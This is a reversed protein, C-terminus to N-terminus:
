GQRSERTRRWKGGQVAHYIYTNNPRKTRSQRYKGKGIKRIRTSTRSRSRGASGRRGWCLTALTILGPNEEGAEGLGRWGACQEVCIRLLWKGARPIWTRWAQKAEERTTRRTTPATRQALSQARKSQGLSCPGARVDNLPVRGGRYSGGERTSGADMVIQLTMKGMVPRWGATEM